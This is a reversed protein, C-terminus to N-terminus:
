EGTCQSRRYKELEETDFLIPSNQARGAKWAIKRDYRKHFIFMLWDETFGMKKLESLKMVPKPYNM